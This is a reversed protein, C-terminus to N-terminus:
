AAAGRPAPAGSACALVREWCHIMNDVGLFLGDEHNGERWPSRHDVSVGEPVKATHAFDILFVGAAPGHAEAVFLLSAGVFSRERAFASQLLAERLERLIRLVTRSVAVPLVEGNPAARGAGKKGPSAPSPLFDRAILRAVDPLGRLGRLAPQGTRGRSGELGDVRFGLSRLTTLRDNTSMWRYKTCAELEREQETPASPDAEVLRRYLDARLKKRHVEEESFSRVGLKCDMVNPNSGFDKLVNGLRMYRGELDPALDLPDVEGFFQATFPLLSDGMSAMTLYAGAEADDWRKMVCDPIEPVEEADRSVYKLISAGGHGAAVRDLSLLSSTSELSGCSWQRRVKIPKESPEV